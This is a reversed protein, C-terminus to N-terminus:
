HIHIGLYSPLFKVLSLFFKNRLSLFKNAKTQKVIQSYFVHVVMEDQIDNAFRHFSACISFEKPLKGRPDEAVTIM